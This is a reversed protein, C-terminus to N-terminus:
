GDKSGQRTQLSNDIEILNKVLNALIKPPFIEEINCVFFEMLMDMLCILSDVTDILFRFCSSFVSFFDNERVNYCQCSEFISIIVAISTKSHQPQFKSKCNLWNPKFPHSKSPHFQFYHTVRQLHTHTLMSFIQISVFSQPARHRNSTLSKHTKEERKKQRDLRVIKHAAPGLVFYGFPVRRTVPPALMLQYMQVWLGRWFSVEDM